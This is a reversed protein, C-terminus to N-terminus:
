AASAWACSCGKTSSARSRSAGPDGKLSGANRLVWQVAAYADEVAAPYKFRLLSVIPSLSSSVTRRIDTAIVCGGGHFYVVVPFPGDGGPSYVRALIEGAASPILIHDIGGV